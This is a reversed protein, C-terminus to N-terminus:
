GKRRSEGEELKEDEDRGKDEKDVEEEEGAEKEGGVHGCGRNPKGKNNNQEKKSRRIRGKTWRM